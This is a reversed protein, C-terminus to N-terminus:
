CAQSSASASSAASTNMSNHTRPRYMARTPPTMESVGRARCGASSCASRSFYRVPAAAAGSWERSCDGDRGLETDVDVLDGHQAVGATATIRIHHARGHGAQAGTRVADGHMRTRVLAVDAGIIDISQGFQGALVADFEIDFAVRE